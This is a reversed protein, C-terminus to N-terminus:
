VIRIVVQINIRRMPLSHHSNKREQVARASFKKSSSSSSWSIYQRAADESGKLNDM